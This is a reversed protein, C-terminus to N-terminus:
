DKRQVTVKVPSSTNGATDVARISIKNKGPKLKASFKWAGTGSAAKYSSGGIKGEVRAVAVNDSASGSLTIRAKSTTRTKKGSVTVHPPTTDPVIAPPAAAAVRFGIDFLQTAPPASLSAAASLLAPNDDIWSGNRIRYNETDPNLTDTWEWANGNQDFTGYYSVSDAYSSVDALYNQNPLKVPQQTIAYVGNNYNAGGPTGVANSSALTNSQNAYLWYGGAGGFLVPSYYAAKYWEDESPLWWAAGANRPIIGSTAGNLTYAGTETGSTATAGNQLWNVFRAASFWGVYTIPHNGTGEILTYVYPDATTGSGGRSIGACNADTQMNENWLDTIYDASPVTAVADLFAKYQSITVETRGIRYPYAVAGYGRADSYRSPDYTVNSTSAAANGPNGVPVTDITVLPMAAALRITALLLLLSTIKM